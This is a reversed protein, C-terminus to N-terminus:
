KKERMYGMNNKKNYSSGDYKCVYRIGGDCLIIHLIKCNVLSFSRLVIFAIAIEGVDLWPLSMVRMFITM